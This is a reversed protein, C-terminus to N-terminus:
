INWNIDQQLKEEVQKFINSNFFGNYASFPSPHVGIIINDKNEIFKEKSKAFNGLLVFLCNKNKKNIYSIVDDTFESWINTHSNPKNKVVTM